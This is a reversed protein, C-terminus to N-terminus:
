IFESFYINGHPLGFFPKKLPSLFQRSARKPLSPSSKAAPICFRWSWIAGVEPSCVTNAQSSGQVCMVQQGNCEKPLVQCVAGNGSARFIPASPSDTANTACSSFCTNSCTKCHSVYGSYKWYGLSMRYLNISTSSYWTPSSSNNAKSTVFCTFSGAVGFEQCKSDQLLFDQSSYAKISGLYPFVGPCNRWAGDRLVLWM